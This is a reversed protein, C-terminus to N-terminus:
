YEILSKTNNQILTNYEIVTDNKVLRNILSNAKEITCIAVHVSRLGGPPAHSGMFGDVRVGSSGLLNKFLLRTLTTIFNNICLIMGGVNHCRSTVTHSWHKRNLCDAEMQLDVIKVTCISVRNYSNYILKGM